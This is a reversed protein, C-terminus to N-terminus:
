ATVSVAILVLGGINDDGSVSVDFDDVGRSGARGLLVVDEVELIAAADDHTLQKVNTLTM